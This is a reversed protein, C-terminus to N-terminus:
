CQLLSFAFNAHGVAPLFIILLTCCMELNMLMAVNLCIDFDIIIPKSPPFVEKAM